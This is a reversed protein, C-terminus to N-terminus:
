PSAGSCSKVLTARQWPGEYFTGAKADVTSRSTCSKKEIGLVFYFIISTINLIKYIRSNYNYVMEEQIYKLLKSGRDNTQNM